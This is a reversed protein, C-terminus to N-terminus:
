ESLALTGILDNGGSFAEFDIEPMSFDDQKTAFSMKSSVCNYLTLVLSKNQYPMYLDARWTPAYGMPLNTIDIKTASSSSATYQYNIYVRTGEDAAAFTYKGDSDVSYQGATPMSAVRKMTNGNEDRVGLDVTFTGSNPPAVTIEFTSPPIVAGTTDYVQSVIGNQLSQGLFLSNFVAGNIRGFSAKGTIKGKSRGVAVPFQKNGHLTKNEFSIDVSVDQLEGFQVPTPNSIAAGTADALPIGSLIGSGFMFQM